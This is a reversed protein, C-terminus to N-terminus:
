YLQHLFLELQTYSALNNAVNKNLLKKYFLTYRIATNFSVILQKQTM